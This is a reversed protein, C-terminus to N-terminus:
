VKRDTMRNVPPIASVGQVSVGPCVGGLFVDGQASVEGQACSGRPLCGGLSVGERPCVGVPSPWQLLRYADQQFANM